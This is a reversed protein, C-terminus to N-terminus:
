ANEEPVWPISSFEIGEDVLEKADESSTEGYIGHPTVEGYHIKRAEEAFNSGVYDCEKSIHSQLEKLKRKLEVAEPTLKFSSEVPAHQTTQPHNDRGSKGIRPAMLAKTIKSSGCTPCSLLKRKSQTDFAQSDRFWAEFSHEKDCQLQYLIM